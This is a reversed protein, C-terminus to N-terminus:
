KVFISNKDLESPSKQRQQKSAIMPIQQAPADPFLSIAEFVFQDNEATMARYLTRGEDEVRLRGLQYGIYKPTSIEVTYADVIQWDVGAEFQVFENINDASLGINTGGVKSISIKMSDTILAQIVFGVDDLYEKCTDSMDNRYWDTIGISSLYEITIGNLEVNVTHTKNLGLGASFLASGFVTFGLNGQFKYNYSRNFHQTDFHRPLGDSSFCEEAPAIYSLATPRGALMTGTGSNELPNEYGIFGYEKVLGNLASVPDDTIAKECGTFSFIGITSLAIIKTLTKVRSTKVKTNSIKQNSLTSNM